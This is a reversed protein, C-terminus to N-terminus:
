DKVGKRGAISEDTKIILSSSSDSLEQKVSSSIPNHIYKLIGSRLEEQYWNEVQEQIVKYDDMKTNVAYWVGIATLYTQMEYKWSPYSEANGKFKPVKFLKNDNAIKDRSM